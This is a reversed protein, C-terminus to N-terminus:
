VPMLQKNVAFLRPRQAGGGDMSKCTDGIRDNCTKSENANLAAKRSEM